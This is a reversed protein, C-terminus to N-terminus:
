VKESKIKRKGTKKNGPTVYTVLSTGKKRILERAIKKVTDANLPSPKKTRKIIGGSKKKIKPDKKDILISDVSTAKDIKSLKNVSKTSKSKKISLSQSSGSKSIKPESISATNISKRSKKLPIKVDVESVFETAQIIETIGDGADAHDRKVPKEGTPEFNSEIGMSHLKQLKKNLKTLRSKVRKTHTKEDVPGNLTPFQRRRRSQSSFSNQTSSAGHFLHNPRKEYPVYEAVIRKKFMLYNNMTEAAIRAVEQHFFEVYGYGKSQGTKNSRCVKVNTVKGFQDFYQKIEEEYFGHPIHGIYILGRKEEASQRQKKKKDEIIEIKGTKIQQKLKKTKNSFKKQNSKELAIADGNKIKKM